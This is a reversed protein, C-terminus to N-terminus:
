AEDAAYMREMNTIPFVRLPSGIRPLASMTTTMML